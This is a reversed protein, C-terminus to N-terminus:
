TELNLFHYNPARNKQISYCIFEGKENCGNEWKTGPNVLTLYQSSIKGETKTNVITKWCSRCQVHFDQIEEITM